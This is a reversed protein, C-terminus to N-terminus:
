MPRWRREGLERGDGSARGHAASVDLSSQRSALEDSPQRADALRPDLDSAARRLATAIPHRNGAELSAAIAILEESSWPQGLSGTDLREVARLEFSGSTLTGTKDFVVANTKSLAEICHTNVILFGQRVLSALAASTASPTALSFACPCTVVLVSLTVVFMRTPDYLNWALAVAAAIVLVAVVFYSAVRDTLRVFGPRAYRAQESIRSIAGIQDLFGPRLPEAVLDRYVLLRTCRGRILRIARVTRTSPIRSFCRLPLCGFCCRRAAAPAGYRM